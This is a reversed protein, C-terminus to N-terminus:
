QRTASCNWMSARCEVLYTGGDGITTQGAAAWSVGNFQGEITWQGPPVRGPLTVRQGGRVLRVPVGGAVTVEAGAPVPAPAAAEPESSLPVPAPAAVPAPAPAAVPAPRPAPVPAHVPDVVPPASPATDTQAPATDVPGDGDDPASAQTAEGSPPPRVSPPEGTDAPWALWVVVGGLILTVAAALGGGTALLSMGGVVMGLTSRPAPTSSAPAETPPLTGLTDLPVSPSPPMRPAEMTGEQLTRGELEGHVEEATPWSRQRAWRKLSPGGVQDALEDCRRALEEASPRDEPAYALAQAVLAFLEPSVHQRLPELKDAVYARYRDGDVALGALMTVPVDFVRAGGLGEAMTAGLSFVDAAPDVVPRLFREPAMFPPSGIMTDTKTHAERTMEDTRAIGFDLLKAVGRRGVRINSPKIDRHVMRLPAGGEALPATWAAHLAGAVQGVVELLARPGIRQPPDGQMCEALDEGDVFETVLAVRGELVVQDFVHLIAPHELRALLKAEDRLRQVAQGRPDVDRRLVKVAVATTLGGDRTMEAKYVEGFGGRGLCTEITFTRTSGSETPTSV